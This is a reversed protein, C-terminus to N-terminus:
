KDYHTTAEVEESGKADSLGSDGRFKPETPKFSVDGPGKDLIGAKKEEKPM